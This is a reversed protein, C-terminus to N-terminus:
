KGENFLMLKRKRKKYDEVTYETLGLKERDSSTLSAFINNCRKFIDDCRLGNQRRHGYLIPPIDGADKNFLYNISLAIDTRHLGQACAIYFKGKNIKEFFAPLQEIIYRTPTKEADIPFHFYTMGNSEVKNKFKNSYDSTKLDIIQEIGSAKIESLYGINRKHALSEGRVSNNEIFQLNPIGLNKLKEKNLFHYMGYFNLNLYCGFEHGNIQKLNEGNQTNSIPNNINIKKCTKLNYLSSNLNLIM